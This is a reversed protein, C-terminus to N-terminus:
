DARGGAPRKKEVYCLSAQRRSHWPCRARARAHGPHGHWLPSGARVGPRIGRRPRAADLKSGCTEGRALNHRGRCTPGHRSDPKRSPMGTFNQLAAALQRKGARSSARPLECDQRKRSTPRTSPRGALPVFPHGGALQSPCFRCCATASWLEADDASKIARNPTPLGFQGRANTGTSSMQRYYQKVNTMNQPLRFAAFSSSLRRAEAERCAPVDERTEADDARNAEEEACGPPTRVKM